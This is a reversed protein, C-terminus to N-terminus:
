LAVGDVLEATDRWEAPVACRRATLGLAAVECLFEEEGGKRSLLDAWRNEGTAVRAVASFAGRERLLEVRRAVLRQMPATTPSLRRAAGEAATNDTFEAYHTCGMLPLFTGMAAAMAFLEKVNIHLAAEAPTWEDCVYIVCGQHLAWAGFGYGGSADSYAVGVGPTGAMPFAGRSALPVGEHEERRLEEAWRRLSARAKATIHVRGGHLRFQARAVRFMCHLWQRGQPFACAAFLLRHLVSEFERLRCVEKAAVEAAREAYTHRKGQSLRMRRRVLDLEMGLVELLERPSQEKSPESMHGVKEVAACAAAFHMEARRCHRGCIAGLREREDPGHMVVAAGETDYLLDDISGGAGDDVYLGFFGLASGDKREPRDRLWEMVAPERPPYLGDVKHMARRVLWALYNSMRCCKVAASADGFQEREDVVMGGEVAYCNRWIEGRQRGVKRYYAECDFSWVKVPAGSTQLIAASEALQSARLLRVAPWETRDISGNVSEAGIGLEPRPWSLDITMRHKVRGGREEEVMSYANARVPWFPLEASTSSWGRAADKGLKGQLQEYYQLAGVHPPSLVTAHECSADDSVGHVLESIIAQDDFGVSAAMVETLNLDTAPPDGDGSPRLPVAEKGEMLPRLDWVWAETGPVMHGESARLVLDAPRLRRAMSLNGRAAAALCRRLRRMWHAVRRQTRVPIIDDLTRVRPPEGGARAPANRWETRPTPNLEPMARSRLEGVDAPDLHDLSFAGKPRLWPEQVAGPAKLMHPDASGLQLGQAAAAVVPGASAAAGTLLAVLVGARAGGRSGRGQRAAGTAPSAERSGLASGLASVSASVSAPVSAPVLTPLGGRASSSASSGQEAGDGEMCVVSAPLMAEAAAPGGADLGARSAAAVGEQECM